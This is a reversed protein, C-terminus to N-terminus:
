KSDLPLIFGSLPSEHCFCCTGVRVHCQKKKKKEAFRTQDHSIEVGLGYFYMALVYRLNQNNYSYGCLHSTHMRWDPYRAHQSFLDIGVTKPPRLPLTCWKWDNTIHSMCAWASTWQFPRLQVKIVGNGLFSKRLPHSILGWVYQNPCMWSLKKQAEKQEYNCLM